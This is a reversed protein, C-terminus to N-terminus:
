NITPRYVYIGKHPRSAGWLPEERTGPFPGSLHNSMSGDPGYKELSYAIEPGECILM